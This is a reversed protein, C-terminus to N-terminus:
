TELRLLAAVQRDTWDSSSLSSLVGRDHMLTAELLSSECYELAARESIAMVDAVFRAHGAFFEALAAAPSEKRLAATIGAVEKRAVREAAATAMRDQREAGPQIGREIDARRSGAPEMNLPQLPTDLDELANLNERERVENRTMWGDQIAKGYAEYRTKTDARLVADLLHEPFYGAGFDLDRMLMQEWRRVAPYICDTVWEQAQHEINSWTARDLIGVKHPPVRWLGCIDIDSYKRSELWQADANNISLAMLEMGQDMVPVRGANGGGYAANFQNVFNTRAEESAFKAGAPMKVWMPPRAGNRFYRSGYDRSSIGAGISEREAEIPNIGQYPDTGFGTLHLVQGFVLVREVGKDDRTRYRPMGRDTVEVTTRQPHLPLLMDVRGSGSYIIESFGNGLLSAHGQMLERWQMSTQWPNPADNLLAALPHDAAREKGRPLRRYVPLPLMGVTEAIARVCKYVTSLQMASTANVRVGAASSSTVDSYWFDDGAGRAAGIDRQLFM